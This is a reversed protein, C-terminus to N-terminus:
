PTGITRATSFGTISNLAATGARVGAAPAGSWEIGYTFAADGANRKRICNGIVSSEDTSDIRIVSVGDSGCTTFHNGTVVVGRVGTRSYIANSSIDLFSNGTIVISYTAGSGQSLNFGIVGTTAPNGGIVNNVFMWDKNIGGASPSSNVWFDSPRDVICNSVHLNALGAGAANIFRPWQEGTIGDIVLGDWNFNVDTLGILYNGAQGNGNYKGGRIEMIAGSILDIFPVSSTGPQVIMNNVIVDVVDNTRANSGISLFQRPSLIELNLMQIFRCKRFRFAAGSTQTVNAQMTFDAFTIGRTVADANEGVDFWHGAAFNPLLITAGRGEGQFAIRIEDSSNSFTISSDLRFRGSPICITGRGLEQAKAIAANFAPTCDKDNKPSAGFDLLNLDYESRPRATRSLRQMHQVFPKSFDKGNADAMPMQATM